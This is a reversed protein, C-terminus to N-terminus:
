PSSHAVTVLPFEAHLRTGQGSQSFLDFTGGALRVREALGALGLSDHRGLAEATAFGRGRDAIEVQLSTDDASVTVVANKAGSHRAVNTLAEQVMRFVTTELEAGLRHAPLTLELEIIIGTQHQFLRTQWELAPKLGLDDLLRPRLQLSLERVGRLLESTVGLADNLPPSPAAVRAAELQFRLGTLLQGIQDHLEQALARREDEQVRLLRSSLARLRVSTEEARQEAERRVVVEHELECTRVAVQDSLSRNLTALEDTLQANLRETDARQLANNLSFVLETLCDPGALLYDHAGLKFAAITSETHGTHAVVVVPMKRECARLQRLVDLQTSQDLHAGLVVADFTREGAVVRTVDALSGPVVRLRPAHTAVFHITDRCDSESPDILLVRHNATPRATSTVPPKRRAHLRQVIEPIRRFDASNKDICDAAGARLARVALEHQGHGSVMIVPTRDNRATLEGLVQLGNLDPMVLDVMLVSYAGSEMATLCRRGSDVIDLTCAASHRAFNLRVLEAIQPDDEAYLVRMM